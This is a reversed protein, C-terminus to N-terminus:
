CRGRPESPESVEEILPEVDRLNNVVIRLGVIDDISDFVNSASIGRVVAKRILSHRSKVRGNIAAIRLKTDRQHQRRIEGLRKLVQSLAGDYFKKRRSYTQRFFNYEKRDKKGRITDDTLIM